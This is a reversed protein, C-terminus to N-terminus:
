NGVLFFLSIRRPSPLPFGHRDRPPEARIEDQIMMPSSIPETFGGAAWERTRASAAVRALQAVTNVPGKAMIVEDADAAGSQIPMM